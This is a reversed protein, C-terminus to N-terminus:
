RIDREGLKEHLRIITNQQKEARDSMLMITLFLIM